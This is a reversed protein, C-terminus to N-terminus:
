DKIRKSCISGGIYNVSSAYCRVLFAFYNLLTIRHQGKPNLDKLAYFLWYKMKNGQVDTRKGAAKTKAWNGNLKQLTGYRSHANGRNAARESM